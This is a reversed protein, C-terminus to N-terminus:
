PAAFSDFRGLPPSSRGAPKSSRIPWWARAVGGGTYTADALGPAEPLVQRADRMGFSAYLHHAETRAYGSELTVDWCHREMARHEAAELLAGGIGQRRADDVVFLDPIWAQPTAHNLRNRFHLSCFGVM